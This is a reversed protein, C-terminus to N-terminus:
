LLCLLKRIQGICGADVVLSSWADAWYYCVYQSSLTWAKRIQKGLSNCPTALELAEKAGRPSLEDQSSNLSLGGSSLSVDDIGQQLQLRRIAQQLFRAEAVVASDASGDKM